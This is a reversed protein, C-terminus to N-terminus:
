ASVKRQRVRLGILGVLGSGLLLLTPPLPVVPNISCFGTLAAVDGGGSLGFSVTTSFIGTYPGSPGPAPGFTYPGYAYLSGAPGPGFAATPGVSWTFAVDQLFNDQILGNLNTATITVGNGTFDTLGGVISSTVVTPLAPLEGALVPISFVFAFTSPAGFDTVALGYSIIPDASANGTIIVQDGGSFNITQESLVFGSESQLYSLDFSEGGSSITVGFAMASTTLGVVMLLAILAISTRKM